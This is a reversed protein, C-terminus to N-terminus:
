DEKVACGRSGVPRRAACAELESEISAKLVKKERATLDSAEDKDYSDDVMDSM